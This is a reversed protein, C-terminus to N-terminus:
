SVLRDYFKASLFCLCLLPWCVQGSSPLDGGNVNELQYTFNFDHQQVPSKFVTCGDRVVLFGSDGLNIARLGQVFSYQYFDMLGHM